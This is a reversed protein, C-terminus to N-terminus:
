PSALTVAFPPPPLPLKLKAWLSRGEPVELRGAAPDYSLLKGAFPEGQGAGPLVGLSEPLSGHQARHEACALAAALLKRAALVGQGQALTALLRAEHNSVGPSALTEAWAAAPKAALQALALARSAGRWRAWDEALFSGVGGRYGVAQRLSAEELGVVKPFQAALDVPSLGQALEAARGRPLPKAALTHALGWLQWRELSLGALHPALGPEQELSAALSGLAQLAASARAFSGRSTEWRAQLYLLKGLAALQPLDPLSARFGESYDLGYFSEWLLAGQAALRLAPEQAAVLQGLRPSPPESAAPDCAQLVRVDEASLELKRCAALFFRAANAESKVSGRTYAAPSLPGLQRAFRDEAAVRALRLAGIAVGAVLLSFLALRVAPSRTM